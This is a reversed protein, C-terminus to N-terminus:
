SALGKLKEILVRPTLLARDRIPPVAKELHAKIEKRSAFVREVMPILNGEIDEINVVNEDQGLMSMIGNTKREYAIAVIPTGTCMTLINAHMRTGILMEFRSYLVQLALPSLDEDLVCVRNINRMRKVVERSVEVDRGGSLICQPVFFATGNTLEIMRDTAQAVEVLYKEMWVEPHAKSPFNHERVSVGVWPQPYQNLSEAVSAFESTGRGDDALGFAADPVLVVRDMAVGYEKLRKLSFEERVSIVDMKKLIEEAWKRHVGEFPGLSQAYIVVPKGAAKAMSLTLWHFLWYDEGLTTAQLYGGPLSVVLDCELIERATPAICGLLRYGFQKPLCIRILLWARFVLVVMGLVLRLLTPSWTGSKHICKSVRGSPDLPMAVVREKYRQADLVHTFSTFSLEVDPVFQRLAQATAILLAADGKNNWTFSGAVFIRKM